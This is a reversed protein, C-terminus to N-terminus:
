LQQFRVSLWTFKNAMLDEIYDLGKDNPHYRKWQNANLRFSQQRKLQYASSECKLTISGEEGSIGAAMTDMLGKWILVPTDILQYNNTLPCMYLKAPLGRYEEVDGLAIALLELQAINLTFNVSSTEMGETSDVSSITGIEGFGLWTKGGWDINFNASSLYVTASKFQFEVFYVINVFGSSVADDQLTTM